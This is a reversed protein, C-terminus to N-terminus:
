KLFGLKKLHADIDELWENFRRERIFEQLDENDTNKVQNLPKHECLDYVPTRELESRWSAYVGKSETLPVSVKGLNAGSGITVTTRLRNAISLESQPMTRRLAYLGNKTNEAVQKGFKITAIETLLPM